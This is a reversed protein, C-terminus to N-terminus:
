PLIRYITSQNTIHVGQVALDLLVVGVLMATLSVQALILVAWAAIMLLLAIRTSANAHGQDARLGFVTAALAGALGALGFAGIVGDSLEFPQGALLFTMSTWFVSFIAFM